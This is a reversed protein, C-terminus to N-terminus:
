LKDADKAIRVQYNVNLVAPSDAVGMLMLNINTRGSMWSADMSKLVGIKDNKSTLEQGYKARLAELLGDYALTRASDFPLKENLTLSVQVLREDKFFFKADFPKRVVEINSLRLLEVAGGTIASGKEPTTAGPVVVKVQAVTMGYETGQWLVQARAGIWCTALLLGVLIRRADMDSRGM